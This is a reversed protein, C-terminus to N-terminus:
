SSRPQSGLVVFGSLDLSSSSPNDNENFAYTLAYFMFDVARESIVVPDVAPISISIIASHSLLYIKMYVRM